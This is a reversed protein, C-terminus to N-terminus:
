IYNSFDFPNFFESSLSLLSELAFVTVRALSVFQRSVPQSAGIFPLGYLVVYSLPSTGETSMKALM